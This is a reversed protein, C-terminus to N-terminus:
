DHTHLEALTESLHQGVQTRDYHAEVHARGQRGLRARYDDDTVLRDIAAAIARPDEDVAVGGGSESLFEALAGIDTGIVPLGAAMYEYTKSPVAYRLGPTRRLTALGVAADALLGPIEARDVPDRVEVRDGLDLEDVLRAIQPRRDGDGVLLLRADSEVHQMARVCNELDQAHGFNGAYVVTRGDGEAPTFRGTDVANPVTVLKAAVDDGHTATVQRNMEGTTTLIQAARSFVLGEFARTARTLPSGESVLGLSAAADVWLDGVDVVFAAEGLRDAVLGPVATFPPPTACLVVDFASRRLAVWLTAHVAFVLYYALRSLFGPDPRTPQWTWLRHVDVGAYGEHVHREWSREHAGFPYTRPPALVTVEWGADHLYRATDGVRNANGGMEPLFQQSVVLVRNRDGTM